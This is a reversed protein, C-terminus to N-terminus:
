FDSHIELKSISTLVLLILNYQLQVYWLKFVYYIFDFWTFGTIVVNNYKVQSLNKDYKIKIHIMINKNTKIYTYYDLEVNIHLFSQITNRLKAVLSYWYQWSKPTSKYHFLIVWNVNKYCLNLMIKFKIQCLDYCITDISCHGKTTDQDSILGM